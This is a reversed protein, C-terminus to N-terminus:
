PNVTISGGGSNEFSTFSTSDFMVNGGKRVNSIFNVKGLAPSGFTPYSGNGTGSTLNVTSGSPFNINRLNITYAQMAINPVGTSSILNLGNIEILGNASMGSNINLNLLSTVNGITSGTISIAGNPNTNNLNIIGTSSSLITGGSISMLSGATDLQISGSSLVQTNTGSITMNGLSGLHLNGATSQISTPSTSNLSLTGDVTIDVTKGLLYSNMASFNGGLKIKLDANGNISNGSLNMSGKGIFSVKNVANTGGFNIGVNPTFLFNGKSTFAVENIPGVLSLSTSNFSMDGNASFAFTGSSQYPSFNIQSTTFVINNAPLYSTTTPINNYFGDSNFPSQQLLAVGTFVKSSDITSTSQTYDQAFAAKLAAYPDVAPQSPTQSPTTVTNLQKQANDVVRDIDLIQTLSNMDILQAEGEENIFAILLGTEDVKGQEILKNQKNIADEVKTLSDLPDAFGEVLKSGKVLQEIDFSLVAPRTDQGPNIFTMQGAQLDIFVGSKLILRSKGELILLKFGGNKTASVIITTGTVAATAAATRIQGGGKGKDSHFLVSGQQLNIERQDEKFSFISNSGVRALTNDQFRLEARSDQGTTLVDSGTISEKVKASQAKQSDKSVKVDKVVETVVATKFPTAMCLSNLSIVLVILTCFYKMNYNM